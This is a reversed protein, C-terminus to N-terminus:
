PQGKGSKHTVNGRLKGLLMKIPKKDKLYFMINSALTAKKAYSILM